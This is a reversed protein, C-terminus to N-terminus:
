KELILKGTKQEHDTSLKYFLLQSSSDCSSFEFSYDQNEELRGSFLTKLKVGNMSYLELTANTEKPSTLIFYVRDKFPNPYVILEVADSIQNSPNIEASKLKSRVNLAFSINIQAANGYIDTAKLTVMEKTSGTYMKGSTPNQTYSVNSCADKAPYLESFDPLIYNEGALIVASYNKPISSFTPPTVDLVKILSYGFSSAGESDIVTVKVNVPTGVDQCSFSNPEASIVLKKFEDENDISGEALKVLDSSSLKYNGTNDLNVIINNCKVVPSQNVFKVFVTVYDAPSTIRGDSVILSFVYHKDTTIDPTIFTPKAPDTLDLVIGAPAIWTYTLNDNDFDSSLTGDLTVKVGENVSQDQGANAVPPKNVQLVKVIVEDPQSSKKGDNVVLQFAFESDIMVEPATFTPIATNAGTLIIGDPASWLYTLPLGESDTSLTGDLTVLSGEAILQDAGANAAPPVNVLKVTIKVIDTQSNETGDNVTLQFEFDTDSSVLPAIFTPNPSNLDSLTVRDPATWSYNLIDNDLDSSATGDLTVTTEESVTQDSGADAIPANNCKDSYSASADKYWGIYTGALSPNDVQICFLNINSKANMYTLISNNGNNLKISSLNNVSCDLYQLKHNQSLDLSTIQNSYCRLRWLDPSKSLDLSSLKNYEIYVLQLLQNSSLDLGTLFNNYAHLVLLKSNSNLNLNTIQNRHCYLKELVRNKSLDLTSLNNNECGLVSLKSNQTVDLTSINTRGCYISILNTNGSIDINNMPNDSCDLYTLNVNSALNLSGIKNTYCELVQLDSLKTIDLGSLLNKFCVLRVLKTNKSLDLKTLGNSNCNLEVLSIFDQIGTLDLIGKNSINLTSLSSIRNTPVYNDLTGSDLGINILTQEFNDDPVYTMPFNSCDSSYSAFKDKYWGAYNIALAPDDVQICFLNPNNSANFGKYQGVLNSNNGNKLNLSALKNNFCDFNTLLPCSSVDLITLNNQSCYIRTLKSNKSLGLVALQNNSCQLFDLELNIDINLETLLNNNCILNRLKSNQTLNLNSIKNTSCNLTILNPNNSVDVTTLNASNCYLSELITNKSLDLSSLPNWGCDLFRLLGNSTVDLYNVQNYGLILFDLKSLKSVDLSTLQNKYLSLYTLNTNKSVDINKISNERLDLYDLSTFDQLGTVDAINKGNLTLSKVGSINATPVYDDLPGSDYGLDILALEFNDDPVYTLEVINQFDKWKEANQYALESGKPVYLTCSAKNIGEFVLYYSPFVVPTPSCVKLSSLNGGYQMLFAYTGINTVSAPITISTLNKCNEFGLWSISKVTEPIIFEGAKDILCRLLQTKDKNYLVGDLSSYDENKEDVIFQGTCNRFTEDGISTVTSPINITTLGNSEAFINNELTTVGEPINLEKLGNCRVFASFQIKTLSTPFLISVLSNKGNWQGNCFAFEPIADQLYAITGRISTGETGSYAVIKAGSLDIEALVPMLDRMTKFDRADINGTITLNTISNLEDGALTSYLTGANSLAVTKFVQAQLLGFSGLILFLLLIKKM